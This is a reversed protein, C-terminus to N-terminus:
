PREGVPPHRLSRPAEAEGGVGGVEGPQDVAVVKRAEGRPQDPDREVLLERGGDLGLGVGGSRGAATPNHLRAGPDLRLRSRRRALLLAGVWSTIVLAAMGAQVPATYREPYIVGELYHDIFGSPPLGAEGARHRFLNELYTLPCEISFAVTIGGWLAAAVHPVIWRPWRWALFGGLAVFVLFGFHLVMVADALVRDM